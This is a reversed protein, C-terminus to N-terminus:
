STVRKVWFSTSSGYAGNDDRKKYARFLTLGIEHDERKIDALENNLSSVTRKVEDRVAIDYAISSPQIVQTLEHIITDINGMRRALVERRAELAEIRNEAQKEPPCDPLPKSTLEESAQSPTPKRTPKNGAIMGSPIVPRKRSMISNLNETSQNEIVVSDRPSDTASGPETTEYTTSSFRSPPQEELRLDALASHMTSEPLDVRPPTTRNNDQSPPTSPRPETKNKSASRKEQKPTVSEGATITTVVTPRFRAAPVPPALNEKEPDARSPARGRQKEQLPSMMPMRGSAGKWPEKMQPLANDTTKSLRSRAEAFKKIPQLQERSWSFIGSPQSAPQKPSAHSQFPARGPAVQGAKGAGGTTPEGSFDDWRTVRSGQGSKSGGLQTLSEKRPFRRLVPLHSGHKSKDM